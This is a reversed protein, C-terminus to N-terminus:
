KLERRKRLWGVLIIGIGGLLVAGPAPVHAATASTHFLDGHSSKIMLGISVVSDIGSVSSLDLSLIGTDGPDLPTWDDNTYTIDTEVFLKYSWVDDNDNHITMSFDTYGTLDNIGTNGITIWENDGVIYGEYGVDGIM